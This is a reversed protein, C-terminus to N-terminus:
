WGYLNGGNNHSAKLRLNGIQSWVWHTSISFIAFNRKAFFFIYLLIEFPTIICRLVYVLTGCWVFWLKTDTCHNRCHPIATGAVNWYIMLCDKKEKMNQNTGKFKFSSVEIQLTIMDYCFPNCESNNPLVSTCFLLLKLDNIAVNRPTNVTSFFLQPSVSDIWLWRTKGYLLMPFRNPILVHPRFYHSLFIERTLWSTFFLFFYYKIHWM